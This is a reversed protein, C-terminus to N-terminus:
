VPIPELLVLPVVSLKANEVATFHLFIRIQKQVVIKDTQANALIRKAVGLKMLSACSGITLLIITKKEQRVPVLVLHGLLQVSVM